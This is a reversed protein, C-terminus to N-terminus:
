RLRAYGLARAWTFHRRERFRRSDIGLAKLRIFNLARKVQRRLSRHDSFTVTLVLLSVYMMPLPLLSVALAGPVLLSLVFQYDVELRESAARGRRRPVRIFLRSKMVSSPPAAPTAPQRVLAAPRASAACRKLVGVWSPWAHNSAPTAVKSGKWTLPLHPRPVPSLRVGGRPRSSTLTAAAMDPSRHDPPGVPRGLSIGPADRILCSIRVPSM